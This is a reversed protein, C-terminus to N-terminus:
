EAKVPKAFIIGYVLYAVANEFVDQFLIRERFLLLPPIVLVTGVIRGACFRFPNRRKVIVVSILKVNNNTERTGHM